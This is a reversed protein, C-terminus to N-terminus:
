LESRKLSVVPVVIAAEQYIKFPTTYPTVLIAATVKNVKDKTKDAHFLEMRLYGDKNGAFSRNVIELLEPAIGIERFHAGRNNVEKIDIAGNKALAPIVTTLDPFKTFNETPQYFDEMMDEWLFIERRFDIKGAWQRFVSPKDDYYIKFGDARYEVMTLAKDALLELDERSFIKKELFDREAPKDSLIEVSSYYAIRNNTAQLIGNLVVAYQMVPKKDDTSLYDRIDPFMNNQNKIQRILPVRVWM